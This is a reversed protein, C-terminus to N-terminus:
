HPQVKAASMEARRLEMEEREQVLIAQVDKELTDLRNGWDRISQAPPVRVQLQAGTRKVVQLLLRTSTLGAWCLNSGHPCDRWLSAAFVSM